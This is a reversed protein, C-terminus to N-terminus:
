LTGNRMEEIAEPNTKPIPKLVKYGEMSLGLAKFRDYAAQGILIPWPLVVRAIRQQVYAEIASSFTTFNISGEIFWIDHADDPPPSGGTYGYHNELLDHLMVSNM